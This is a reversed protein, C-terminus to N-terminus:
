VSKKQNIFTPKQGAHQMEKKLRINQQFQLTKIFSILLIIKTHRKYFLFFLTLEKERQVHM